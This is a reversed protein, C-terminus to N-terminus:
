GGSMTAGPGLSRPNGESAGAVFTWTRSMMVRPAVMKVVGIKTGEITVSDVISNEAEQDLRRRSDEEGDEITVIVIDTVSDVISNETEQDPSKRSGEEGDEITVIVIDTKEVPLGGAVEGIVERVKSDEVRGLWRKLILKGNQITKTIATHM